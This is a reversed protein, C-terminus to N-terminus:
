QVLGEPPGPLGGAGAASVVAADGEGAAPSAEGDIFAHLDQFLVAIDRGPLSAAPNGGGYVLFARKTYSVQYKRREYVLFARKTYSVFKQPLSYM